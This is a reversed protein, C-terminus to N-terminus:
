IPAKKDPQYAFPLQYTLFDASDFGRLFQKEQKIVYTGNQLNILVEDGNREPKPIYATSFFQKGLDTRFAYYRATYIPVGLNEASKGLFHFLEEKTLQKWFAGNYIFVHGDNICLSWSRKKAVNLIEEVSIIILHQRSVGEEDSLGAKVQFDIKKVGILLEALIKQHSIICNEEMKVEEAILKLQGLNSKEDTSNIVGQNIQESQQNEDHELKIQETIVEKVIEENLNEM